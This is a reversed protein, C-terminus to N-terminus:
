PHGFISLQSLNGSPFGLAWGELKEGQQVEYLYTQVVLYVVLLSFTLICKGHLLM